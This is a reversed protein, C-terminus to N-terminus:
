KGRELVLGQDGLHLEHPGEFYVPSLSSWRAQEGTADGPGEIVVVMPDTLNVIEGARCAAAGQARGSYMVATAAFGTLLLAARHRVRRHGTITTPNM